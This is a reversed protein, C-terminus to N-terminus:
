HSHQHSHHRTADAVHPELRQLHKRVPSMWSVSAKEYNCTSTLTADGSPDQFSISSGRGNLRLAATAGGCILLVLVKGLM